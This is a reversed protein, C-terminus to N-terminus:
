TGPAKSSTPSLFIFLVLHRWVTFQHGTASIAFSSVMVPSHASYQTSPASHQTPAWVGPPPFDVSNSHSQSFHSGPSTSKQQRFFVPLWGPSWFTIALFLPPPFIAELLHRSSLNSFIIVWRSTQSPSCSNFVRNDIMRISDTMKHFARGLMIFYEKCSM